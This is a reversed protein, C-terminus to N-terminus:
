QPAVKIFVVPGPAPPGDIPNLGATVLANFVSASVPNTHDYQVILGEQGNMIMNDHGIAVQAEPVASFSAALEDAFRQPEGPMFPIISVTAGPLTTSRIVRAAEQSVRRGATPQTTPAPPTVPPTVRGAAELRGLRELVEKMQEQQQVVQVGQAAATRSAAQATDYVARMNDAEKLRAAHQLQSECLLAIVLILFGPTELLKEWHRAARRGAVKLGDTRWVVFFRLIKLLFAIEELTVGIIVMLASLELLSYYNSV